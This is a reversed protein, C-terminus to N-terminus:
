YCLRSLLGVAQEIEGAPLKGSLVHERIQHYLQRYLPVPDNTDLIFM